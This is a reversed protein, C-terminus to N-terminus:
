CGCVRPRLYLSMLHMHAGGGGYGPLNPHQGKDPLPERTSKNREEWQKHPKTNAHM